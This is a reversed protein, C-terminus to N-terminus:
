TFSVISSSPQPISASVSCFAIWGKKELLGAPRFRPIPSACVLRNISNFLPLSLMRGRSQLPYLQGLLRGYFVASMGYVTLALLAVIVLSVPGTCVGVLLLMAAAIFRPIAVLSRARYRELWPVCLMFLASAASPGTVVLAVLAPSGGINKTVFGLQQVVSGIFVGFLCWSVTHRLVARRYSPAIEPFGLIGARRRVPEDSAGTRASAGAEKEKDDHM